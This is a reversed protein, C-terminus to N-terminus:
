GNKGSNNFDLYRAVDVLLEGNGENKSINNV